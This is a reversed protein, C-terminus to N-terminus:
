VSVHRLNKLALGHIETRTRGKRRWDPKKQAQLNEGPKPNSWGVRTCCVVFEEEHTEPLVNSLLMSFKLEIAEPKHNSHKLPKAEIKWAM